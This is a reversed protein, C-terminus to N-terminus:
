RLFRGLFMPSNLSQAGAKALNEQIFGLIAGHMQTLGPEEIPYHSANELMVQRVPVRRIRDLFVTSMWLPTWRDEAPQTLLIPCIDFDEPEVDFRPRMFSSLFGLSVWNGASTRDRLMEGTAEPNNVLAHMKGVLRMPLKLRSLGPWGGLPLTPLSLRGLLPTLTAAIAVDRNRLDLFTMGVIGSVRARSRCAVHYCLM